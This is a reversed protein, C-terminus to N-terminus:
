SQLLSSDNQRMMRVALDLRILRTGGPTGGLGTTADTVADIASWLGSPTAGAKQWTAVAAMMASTSFGAKDRVMMAGSAGLAVEAATLLTSTVVYILTLDTPPLPDILEKKYTAWYTADDKKALALLATEVVSVLENIMLMATNSLNGQTDAIQFTIPTPSRVFGKVPQFVIAGNRNNVMWTGENPVILSKKDTALQGNKTTGGDDIVIGTIVVGKPDIAFRRAQARALVDVSVPTDKGPTGNVAVNIAVPAVTDYFVGITAANSIEGQDNAVTYSIFSPSNGALANDPTFTVTGDANVTWVGENAVTKKQGNAVGNVMDGNLLTVSSVVLTGTTAVDNDLVSVTVATGGKPLPDTEKVPFRDNKAVPGTGKPPKTFPWTNTLWLSVLIATPVALHSLIGLAIAVKTGTNWRNPSDMDRVVAPKPLPKNSDTDIDLPSDPADYQNLERAPIGAYVGVSPGQAL